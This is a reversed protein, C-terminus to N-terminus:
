DNLPIASVSPFFPGGGARCYQRRRKAEGFARVPWVDREQISWFYSLLFPVNRELSNM